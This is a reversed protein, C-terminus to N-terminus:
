RWHLSKVGNLSRKRKPSTQNFGMKILLENLISNIHDVTLPTYLDCVLTQISILSKVQPSAIMRERSWKVKRDKLSYLKNICRCRDRNAAVHNFLELPM